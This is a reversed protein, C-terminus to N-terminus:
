FMPISVIPRESLKHVKQGLEQINVRTKYIGPVEVANKVDMKKFSIYNHHSILLHCFLVSPIFLFSARICHVRHIAADVHAILGSVNIAVNLSLNNEVILHTM